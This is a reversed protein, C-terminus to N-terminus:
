YVSWRIGTNYNLHTESTAIVSPPTETRKFSSIIIITTVIRCVIEVSIDTKFTDLKNTTTTSGTVM